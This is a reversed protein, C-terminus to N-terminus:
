NWDLNLLDTLLVRLCDHNCAALDAHFSYSLINRVPQHCCYKFLKFFMKLLATM